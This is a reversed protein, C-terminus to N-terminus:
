TNPYSFHCSRVRAAGGREAQHVLPADAAQASASLTALLFGAVSVVASRRNM